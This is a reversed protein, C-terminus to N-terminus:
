VRPNINTTALCGIIGLPPASVHQNYAKIDTKLPLAPNIITGSDTMVILGGPFRYFGNIVATRRNKYVIQFRPVLNGDVFELASDNFNRDWGAPSSTFENHKIEVVPNNSDGYLVADVYLKDNEIYGNLADVDGLRILHSPKDRTSTASVRLSNRGVVVMYPGPIEKFTTEPQEPAKQDSPPPAPTAAESPPEELQQARLLDPLPAHEVALRASM